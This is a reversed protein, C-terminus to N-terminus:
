GLKPRKIIGYANGYTQDSITYIYNQDEVPGIDDNRHSWEGPWFQNLRLTDHYIELQGMESSTSLRDFEPMDSLDIIASLYGSSSIEDLGILRIYDNGNDIWRIRFTYFGSSFLRVTGSIKLKVGNQQFLSVHDMAFSDPCNSLYYYIKRGTIEARFVYLDSQYCIGELREHDSLSYNTITEQHISGSQLTYEMKIAYRNKDKLIDDVRLYVDFNGQEDQIIEETEKKDVGDLILKLNEHQNYGKLHFYLYETAHQSRVEYNMSYYTTLLNDKERYVLKVNDNWVEFSYEYSKEESVLYDCIGSLQRPSIDGTSIYISKTDSIRFYLNYWAGEKRLTTVDLAFDFSNDHLDFSISLSDKSDDQTNDIVFTSSEHLEPLLLQGTLSLLVKGEENKKLAFDVLTLEDETIPKDEPSSIEIGSSIPNDTQCGTLFMALLSFLCVCKKM